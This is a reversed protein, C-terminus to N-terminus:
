KRRERARRRGVFEARALDVDGLTVKISAREVGNDDRLLGETHLREAEDANGRWVVEAYGEAILRDPGDPGSHWFTRTDGARDFDGLTGPLSPPKRLYRVQVVARGGALRTLRAAEPGYLVFAAWEEEDRSLPHAFSNEAYELVSAAEEGDRIPALSALWTAEDDSASVEGGWTRAPAHAAM